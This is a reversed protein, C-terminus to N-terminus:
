QLIAVVEYTTGAAGSNRMILTTLSISEKVEGYPALLQWTVGGDLSYDLAQTDHTNRISLGKTATFTLTTNGAALTGVESDGAGYSAETPIGGSGPQTPQNAENGFIYYKVGM